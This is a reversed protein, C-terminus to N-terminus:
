NRFTSAPPSAVSVSYTPSGLTGALIRYQFAATVSDFRFDFEGDEGTAMDATQWRTGEGWEVQAAESATGGVLRAQIFLPSGWEVRANGPTVQLTIRSPSVVRVAANFARRVPLTSAPRTSLFALIALVIAVSSARFWGDRAQHGPAPDDFDADGM